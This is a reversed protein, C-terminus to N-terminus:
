AGTDDFLLRALDAEDRAVALRLVQPVLRARDPWTLYIRLEGLFNAVYARVEALLNRRAEAVDVGHAGIELDNVWLGIGDEDPLYDVTVRASGVAARLVERPLLYMVEDGARERRVAKLRECHVVDDMVASLRAKAQSFQLEEVMGVAGVKRRRGRQGIQGCSLLM